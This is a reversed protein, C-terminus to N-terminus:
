GALTVPIEIVHIPDGNEASSEFVMVTGPQEGDVDFAVDKSYRGRCGTGCTATTFTEAVVDGDEDLIRISVTAEFVNASGSIRVPSEVRQGVVPSEVLIPPLLDDYDACSVPEDLVIGEGGFVDIPEGDIRFTVGDVTDFQDVTCVVQALRATMSLTGGGSEFQGSLDVIGIGDDIAVDLLRTGAPITTGVGAATEASSPGALLATLSARAIAQTAAQTRQASFLHEGYTFWVRYTVTGGASGGTPAPSATPTGGGTPTPSSTAPPASPSTSPTPSGDGGGIPSVTVAGEGACAVAGASLALAVLLILRKM